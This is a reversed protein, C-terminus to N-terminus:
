SVLVPVSFWFTSGKERSSYSISGELQTVIRKCIALGMGTGSFQHTDTSDGHIFPTFLLPRLEEAVGIGSVSFRLTASGHTSPESASLQVDITGDVSFQVANSVLRDLVQGLEAPYGIVQTPVVGHTTITLSLGKKECKASWQAKVASLIQEPAFITLHTDGGSRANTYDLIESIMTRLKEGSSSIIEVCERQEADLDSDVLLSAMGTMAALPTRLEHSITSLFQSKAALATESLELAARLRKQTATIETIDTLISMVAERGLYSISRSTALALIEHGSKSQIRVPATGALDSLSVGEPRGALDPLTMSAFERETYGLLNVAAANCNLLSLTGQDIVFVPAPNAEFLNRSLYNEFTGVALAALDQLFEQDAESLGFPHPQNDIICFSGFRVGPEIELPAGAYFRIGPAGVVMPNDCFRPDYLANPVVMVESGVM